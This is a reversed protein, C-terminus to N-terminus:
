SAASGGSRDMPQNAAQLVRQRYRNWIRKIRPIERQDLLGRYQPIKVLWNWFERDPHDMAFEQAGTWHSMGEWGSAKVVLKGEDYYHWSPWYWSITDAENANGLLEPCSRFRLDLEAEIWDSSRSVFHVKRNLIFAVRECTEDCVAADKAIILVGALERLPIVRMEIAVSAPILDNIDVM